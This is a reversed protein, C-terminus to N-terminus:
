EAQIEVNNKILLMHYRGWVEDRFQFANDTVADATFGLAKYCNIATHNVDFVNLQIGEADTESFARGIACSLMRSGYGRSRLENDTVVFKFFGLKSEENYSYCYFGLTRGDEEAVYARGGLKEEESRLKTLLGEETLPYPMLGACWLAHIRADEVWRSILPFDSEHVYPRITM